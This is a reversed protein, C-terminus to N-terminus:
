GLYESISKSSNVEFGFLQELENVSEKGCEIPIIFAGAKILWSFRTMGNTFRIEGNYISIESVPVPNTKGHSFKEVCSNVKLRESECSYDQCDTFLSNNEFYGNNSFPTNLLKMRDLFVLYRNKNEYNSKSISMYVNDDEICPVHIIIKSSSVEVLTSTEINGFMSLFLEKRKSIINKNIDSKENYLDKLVSKNFNEKMVVGGKIFYVVISYM